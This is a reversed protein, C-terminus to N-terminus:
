FPTALVWVIISIVLTVLLGLLPAVLLTAYAGLGIIKLWDKM